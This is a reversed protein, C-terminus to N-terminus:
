KSESRGTEKRILEVLEEDTTWTVSSNGSRPAATRIPEEPLASLMEDADDAEADPSEADESALYMKRELRSERKAADTERQAEKASAGPTAVCQLLVGIILLVIGILNLLIPLCAQKSSIFGMDMYGYIGAAAIACILAVVKARGAIVLISALVALIMPLLIMYLAKQGEMCQVLNVSGDGLIGSSDPIIGSAACAALGAMTIVINVARYRRDQVM